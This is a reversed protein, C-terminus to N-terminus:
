RDADMWDGLVGEFTPNSLSFFYSIVFIYIMWILLPLLYLALTTSYQYITYVFWLHYVVNFAQLIVAIHIDRSVFFMWIWVISIVLSTVLLSTFFQTKLIALSRRRYRLMGYISIIYVLIWLAVNVIAAIHITEQARPVM